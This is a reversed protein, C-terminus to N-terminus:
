DTDTTTTDTTYSDRRKLTDRKAPTLRQIKLQDFREVRAACADAIPALAVEDCSASFSLKYQGAGACEGNVDAITMVDGAIQHTSFKAGSTSSEVLAGNPAVNIHVREGGRGGAAKQPYAGHWQTNPALECAIPAEASQKTLTMSTYLSTRVQCDDRVVDLSVTSCDASWQTEYKAIADLACESAGGLSQVVVNPGAPVWRMFSVGGDHSEVVTHEPAFTFQVTKESLEPQILTKRFQGSFVDGAAFECTKATPRKATDACRRRRVFAFFFLAQPPSPPTAARRKKQEIRTKERAASRRAARHRRAGGVVVRSEIGNDHATPPPAHINRRAAAAAIPTANEETAPARTRALSGILPPAAASKVSCLKRVVLM